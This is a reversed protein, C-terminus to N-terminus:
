SIQFVIHGDFKHRNKVQENSDMLGGGGYGGDYLGVDLSGKCCVNAEGIEYVRQVIGFVRDVVIKEEVLSGGELPNWGCHISIIVKELTELDHSRISNCSLCQVSSFIYLIAMHVSHHVDSGEQCLTHLLRDLVISTILVRYTSASNSTQLRRILRIM